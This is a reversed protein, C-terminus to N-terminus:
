TSFGLKKNLEEKTIQIKGTLENNSIEFVTQSDFEVIRYLRDVHQRIAHQAIYTEHIKRNCFKCVFFKTM